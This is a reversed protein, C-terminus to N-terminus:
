TNPSFPTWTGSLQQTLAVMRRYLMRDVQAQREQQATFCVCTRAM